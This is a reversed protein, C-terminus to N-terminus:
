GRPGGCPRGSRAPGAPPGSERHPRADHSGRRAGCSGRRRGRRRASPSTGVSRSSKSSSRQDELFPGVVRRSIPLLAVECPRPNTRRARIDRDVVHRQSSSPSPAGSRRGALNLRASRSRPIGTLARTSGSPDRGPHTATPRRLGRVAGHPRLFRPHGRRPRPRCRVTGVAISVPTKSSKSGVATGM